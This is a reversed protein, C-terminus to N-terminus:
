RQALAGVIELAEICTTRFIQVKSVFDGSWIVQINVKWLRKPKSKRDIETRDFSSM